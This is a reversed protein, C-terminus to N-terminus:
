GDRFHLTLAGAERAAAASTLVTGDPRASARVYGRQLLADPNVAELLRATRELHARAAELRQELMAPRLVAGTRDLERRARAARDTLARDLR